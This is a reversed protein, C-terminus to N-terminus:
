YVSRWCDHLGVPGASGWPKHHDCGITADHIVPKLEVRLAEDLFKPRERGSLLLRSAAAARRYLERAPSTTRLGLHDGCRMGVSFSFSFSLSLSLSGQGRHDRM